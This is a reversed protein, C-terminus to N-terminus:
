LIRIASERMHWYNALIRLDVKALTKLNARRNEM